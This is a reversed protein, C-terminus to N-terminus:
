ERQLNCFCVKGEVNRLHSLIEIAHRTGAEHLETEKVFPVLCQCILAELEQFPILASTLGSCPAVDM